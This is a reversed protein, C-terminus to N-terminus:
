PMYLYKKQPLGFLRFYGNVKANEAESLAPDFFSFLSAMNQKMFSRRHFIGAGNVYYYVPSATDGLYQFGVKEYSNGTAYRPDVFSIIPESNYSEHHLLGSLMKSFGGAVRGKFAMRNLEINSGSRRWASCGVLDDNLVLGLYLYGSGFGQLHYNDFFLKADDVGVEVLETRRAYTKISNGIKDDLFHKVANKRQFWEYDFILGKHQARLNKTVTKADQCNRESIMFSSILPMDADKYKSDFEADYFYYDNSESLNPHWQIGYYKANKSSNCASCCLVLNFENHGGGKNVPVFHDETKNKSHLANHCHFCLGKQWLWLHQEHAIADFGMAKAGRRIAKRERQIAAAKEPHAKCWKRVSKRTRDRYLEPNADRREKALKLISPRHKKYWRLHSQKQIFKCHADLAPDNARRIKKKEYARRAKATDYGRLKERLAIEAANNKRYEQASLRLYERNENRYRTQNEAYREANEAAWKKAYAKARDPSKAYAARSYAKWCEPCYPKKHGGKTFFVSIDFALQCKPCVKQEQM